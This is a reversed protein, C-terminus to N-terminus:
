NKAIEMGNRGPMQINLFLIDPEREQLFLLIEGTKYFQIQTHINYKRVKEAM